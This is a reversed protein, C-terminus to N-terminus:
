LLREKTETIMGTMSMGKLLLPKQIKEEIQDPHIRKDVNLLVISRLVIKRLFLLNTAYRVFLFELQAANYKRITSADRLKIISRNGASLALNIKLNSTNRLEVSSVCKTIRRTQRKM